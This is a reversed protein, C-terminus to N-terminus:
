RFQNKKAKLELKQTNFRSLTQNVDYFYVMAVLATLEVVVALVAAILVLVDPVPEVLLALEACAALLAAACFSTVERPEPEPTSTLESACFKTSASRM